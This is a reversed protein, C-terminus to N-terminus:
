PAVNKANIQCHGDVFYGIWFADANTKTSSVIHPAARLGQDITYGLGFPGKFGPRGPYQSFNDWVLTAEWPKHRALKDINMAGKASLCRFSYSNGLEPWIQPILAPGKNSPCVYVKSDGAIYRPRGGKPPIVLGNTQVRVGQGTELVVQVGYGEPYMSNGITGGAFATKQYRGPAIRFGYCGVGDYDPMEQRNDNAYMVMALGISHLNGMCQVQKAQHRARRLSPLLIAILLAIISVVVLLEILTFGPARRTRRKRPNAGPGETSAYM